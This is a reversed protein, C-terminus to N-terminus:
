GLSKLWRPLSIVKPGAVILMMALMIPVAVFALVPTQVLIERGYRRRERGTRSDRHKIM